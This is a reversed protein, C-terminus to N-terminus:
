ALHQPHLTAEAAPSWRLSSSALDHKRFIESRTILSLHLIEALVCGTVAHNERKNRASIERQPFPYLDFPFLSFPFVDRHWRPSTQQRRLVGKEIGYCCPKISCTLINFLLTVMKMTMMKVMMMNTINEECEDDDNVRDYNDNDAELSM